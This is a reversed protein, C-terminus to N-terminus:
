RAPPVVAAPAELAFSRAPESKASSGAGGTHYSWRTGKFACPHGVSALLRALRSPEQAPLDVLQNGGTAAISEIARAPANEVRPRQAQRDRADEPGHHDGDLTLQIEARRNDETLPELIENIPLAVQEHHDVQPLHHEAIGGPETDQRLRVVAHLFAASLEHESGRGCSGVPGKAGGSEGLGDLRVCLTPIM